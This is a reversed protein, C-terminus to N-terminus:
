RRLWVRAPVIRIQGVGFVGFCAIPPHQALPVHGGPEAHIFVIEHTDVIVPCHEGIFGHGIDPGGRNGPQQTLDASPPAGVLSVAIDLDGIGLFGM